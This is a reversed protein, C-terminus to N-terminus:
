HLYYRTYNTRGGNNEFSLVFFEILAGQFSRDILFDLYPNQEQVRVKWQYKNWNITRKFGSKLLQM